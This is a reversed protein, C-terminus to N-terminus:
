RRAHRPTDGPAPSGGLRADRHFFLAKVSPPRATAWGALRVSKGAGAPGLVVTLRQRSGAAPRERPLPRTILTAPRAPPRFKTLAFIVRARTIKM